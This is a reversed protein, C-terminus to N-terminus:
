STTNGVSCLMQIMKVNEKTGGSDGHSPDNRFVHGSGLNHAHQNDIWTYTCDANIIM